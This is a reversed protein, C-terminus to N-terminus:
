AAPGLIADILSPDRRASENAIDEITDPSVAAAEKETMPVWSARGNGHGTAARLLQNLIVARQASNSRRYFLAVRHAFRATDVGYISYANQSPEQFWGQSSVDLIESMFFDRGLFYV